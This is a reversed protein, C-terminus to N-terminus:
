VNLFCDIIFGKHVQKQKGGSFIKMESSIVDLEFVSFDAETPDEILSGGM